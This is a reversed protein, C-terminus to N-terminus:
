VLGEEAAVKELMDWGEDVGPVFGACGEADLISKGLSDNSDISLLADSFQKTLGADIDSQGTFCCHSYGPSSWFVRIRNETATGREALSKLAVASMAGADYEGSQVREMVDQADSSTASKRDEYFSYSDLDSRPDVGCDKLFHYALVGLEVSARGGFAFRRGILDEVTNIDSDVCTIFQTTFDVDVDRMLIVLCPDDLRRRIKVYSLPGNWAIDIEKSVFADVLADYGSYLVWDIDMGRLECYKKIGEFATIHSASATAGLRLM